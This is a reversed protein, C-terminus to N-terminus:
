WLDFKLRYPYFNIVQKTKFDMIVCSYKKSTLKNTYIEDICIVEEFQLRTDSAYKDFVNIITQISVNLDKSVSTFTATHSRLKEM